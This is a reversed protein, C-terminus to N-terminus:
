NVYIPLQKANKRMRIFEEDSISFDTAAFKLHSLAQAREKNSQKPINILSALLLIIIISSAPLTIIVLSELNADSATGLKPQQSSINLNKAAKQDKDSLKELSLIVDDLQISHDLNEVARLDSIAKKIYNNFEDAAAPTSASACFIFIALIINKM